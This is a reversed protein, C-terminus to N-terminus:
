KSRLEHVAAVIAEKEAAAPQFVYKILSERIPLVEPFESQLRATDLLNNSRPAVIM